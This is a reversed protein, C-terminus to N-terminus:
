QIFRRVPRVVRENDKVNVYLWGSGFDMTCAYHASFQTSSWYYWDTAFSEPLYQWAHHLEGISPLYFDTHGEATYTAAVIAAQYEARKDAPIQDLVESILAGANIQEGISAILSNLLALTNARGDARSEAAEVSVGYRGYEHRGPVDNEAYIVHCLGESYQRLGGYIGGQGPWIQGIAPPTLKEKQTM